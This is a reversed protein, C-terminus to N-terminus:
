GRGKRRKKLEYKIFSVMFIIFIIILVIVLPGYIPLLVLWWDWDILGCLKLIIFVIGVVECIGIGASGSNSKSLHRYKRSM